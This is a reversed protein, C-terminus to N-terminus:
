ARRGALGEYEMGGLVWFMDCFFSTGTIKRRAPLCAPAPWSHICRCELFPFHFRENTVLFPGPDPPDGGSGCGEAKGPRM